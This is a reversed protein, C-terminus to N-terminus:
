KILMITSKLFDEQYIQLPSVFKYENNNWEVGAFPTYCFISPPKPIIITYEPFEGINISMIYASSKYCKNYRKYTLINKNDINNNITLLFVQERLMSRSSQM